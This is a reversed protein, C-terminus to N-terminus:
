QNSRSSPERPKLMSVTVIEQSIKLSNTTNSNRKSSKWPIADLVATSVQLTQVAGNKLHLQAWSCRPWCHPSNWWTSNCALSPMSDIHHCCSHTYCHSAQSVHALQLINLRGLGLKKLLLCCSPAAFIPPKPFLVRWVVLTQMLLWSCNGWKLPSTWRELLAFTPYKKHCQM